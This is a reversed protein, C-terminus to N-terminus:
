KLKELKCLRTIDNWQNTIFTEFKKSPIFEKGTDATDIGFEKAMGNPVSVIVSEVGYFSYSLRSFNADGQTSGKKFERGNWYVNCPEVVKPKSFSQLGQANSVVPM